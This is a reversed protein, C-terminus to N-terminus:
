DDENDLNKIRIVVQTGPYAENEPFADQVDISIDAIGSTHLTEVKEDVIKMGRSRHVRNSNAQANKRGIGNDTLTCILIEGEAEFSIKILGQGDIRGSLGHNVSNEVFPQLLMPPVLHHEPSLDEAQVIDVDFIDEFRMKELATYNKLLNIEQDLPIMKERASDLYMRMLRAFMTLYNDAADVEHTQIFYQIAGLANFIFHPNMQAKLADLELNAIRKELRRKGEQAKKEQIIQRLALLIVGGIFTIFCLIQFWLRQWLPKAIKISVPPHIIENGYADVAKLLFSYRGPSLAPYDKSRAESSQWEQEIPLLRTFYTIKKNSAYSRLNYTFSIDNERYSLNKLQDPDITENNLHVATISLASDIANENDKQFYRNLEHLGMPSAVYLTSDNLAYVDEIENTPLGDLTTYQIYDKPNEFPITLIGENCAVLLGEQADPRIQRIMKSDAIKQLKKAKLDYCFLGLGETGIWLKGPTGYLTSINELQNNNPFLPIRKNDQILSLGKLGAGYVQDNFPHVYLSRGTYGKVELKIQRKSNLQYKFIYYSHKLAYIVNERANYSMSFDNTMSFSPDNSFFDNYASNAIEIDFYDILKHASLEPSHNPIFYNFNSSSVMIGYTTNVADRFRSARNPPMVEIITDSQIQYVGTNATIGLITQDNLPLLQEFHAEGQAPLSRKKVRRNAQPILFLGGDRTGLWINGKSDKFINHTFYQKLLENPQFKDIINGEFDFCLAGDDSNFWFFDDQLTINTHVSPKIGYDQLSYYKLSNTEPSIWLLDGNYNWIIFSQTNPIWSIRSSPNTVEPLLDLQQWQQATDKWTIVNSRQDWYYDSLYIKVFERSTYWEKDGEDTTIFYTQIERTKSIDIQKLRDPFIELIDPDLERDNLRILHDEYSIIAGKTCNYIPKGDKLGIYVCRDEAIIHIRDQYLYAPRNKYTWLWIKGDAGRQALPIDNGPLGQEVSFHQFQYGDFKALGNETYAWIFGDEDEVAGYVYNTPLGDETTFQIHEVDQGRLFHTTTLLIFLTIHRLRFTM